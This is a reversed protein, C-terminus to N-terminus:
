ADRGPAAFIFFLFGVGILMLLIGSILKSTTLKSKYEATPTGLQYTAAAQYTEPSLPTQQTAQIPQAM